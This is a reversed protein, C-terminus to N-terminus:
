TRGGRHLLTNLGDVMPALLREMADLRKRGPATLSYYKRPPGASSEELTVRVAGDARLRSLAPYVTGATVDFGLADVTQLLEFAYAPEREITKLLVFELLGKRAQKLWNQAAADM